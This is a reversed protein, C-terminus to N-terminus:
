LSKVRRSKSRWTHCTLLPSPESSLGRNQDCVGKWALLFDDPPVQVPSAHQCVVAHALRASPTAWGSLETRSLVGQLWGPHSETAKNPKKKKEEWFTSQVHNNESYWLQLLLGPWVQGPEEACTFRHSTPAVPNMVLWPYYRMGSKVEQIVLGVSVLNLSNPKWNDHSNPLCKKGKSLCPITISTSRRSDQKM